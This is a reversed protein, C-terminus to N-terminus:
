GPWDAWLTFIIHIKKKKKKKVKVKSRIDLFPTPL